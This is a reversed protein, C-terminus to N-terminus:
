RRARFERPTVGEVAKFLRAFASADRLGHAAAIRAISRHALAPDRLDRRIAALREERIRVAVSQGTPELL